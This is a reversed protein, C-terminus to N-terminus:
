RKTCVKNAVGVIRSEVRDTVNELATNGSLKSLYSETGQDVARQYYEAQAPYDPPNVECEIIDKRNM